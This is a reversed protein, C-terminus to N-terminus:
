APPVTSGGGAESHPQLGRKLGFAAVLGVAGLGAMAWFALQPASRYLPGAAVTATALLLGSIMQHSAQLRATHGPTAVAGITMMVGLHTAAFTLAHLAQLVYVASPVSLLPFLAWRLIAAAGGVLLFRRAGWGTLRRASWFLAVEILVSFAWLGAITRGDFGIQRWYLTGFAYYAGHTALIAGGAFIARRLVADGFARRFGATGRAEPVDRVVPLFLAALSGAFFAAVQLAFIGSLGLRGIAEGAAFNGAIFAVSGWLRLRAYDLGHRQAGAIIVADGLPILATWFIMAVTAFVVIVAYTPLAAMPLFVAATVAAYVTAARGLTGFRDAFAALLPGLVARIFLPAAIVSAIQPESLGKGAMWVPFFPLYIGVAFFTAACFGASRGAFSSRGAGATAEAPEEGAEQTM